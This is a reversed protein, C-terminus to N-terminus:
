LIKGEVKGWTVNVYCVSSALKSLNWANNNELEEDRACMGALAGKPMPHEKLTVNEVKNRSNQHDGTEKQKRTHKCKCQCAKYKKHICKWGQRYIYM